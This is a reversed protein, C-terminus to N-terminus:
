TASPNNFEKRSIAVLVTAIIGLLGTFSIISAIVGVLSLLWEKRKIALIGGIIALVSSILWIIRLGFLSLFYTSAVGNGTASHESVAANFDPHTLLFLFPIFVFLLTIGASVISLIGGIVPTMTRHATAEKVKEM